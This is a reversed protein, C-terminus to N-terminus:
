RLVLPPLRAIPIFGLALVGNKVALTVDLTEANGSAGALAQLIGEAQGRVGRPLAGSTEALDLMSRWNQAQLSLTGNALGATDVKLDAAFNLQLDGWKAEARHLTIQRPQPRRTDLATRDWPTDFTVAAMVQLSDFRRAFGDPLRLARRPGDGPEFSTARAVLDYTPGDTQTMTLTLDDAAILPGGPDALAWPGSTWGLAELELASGPHLNMEIVSNQMTLTNRGLPSALLIPRDNLTVTVDGPWWAPAAIDLRETQIALGAEPDALALDVLGTQLSLPFGGAEIATVDAQWGESVRADLWAAIGGRLSNSAIVWWGVWILAMVIVIGTLKRM